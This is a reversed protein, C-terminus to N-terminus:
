WVVAAVAEATTASAIQAKLAESHEFHAVGAAVMAAVMAKFTAIDPIAVFSNDTAKWVGAFGPPLAGYLAVYSAVGDLDSRSLVDCAIQKGGFAFSGRNAALRAANIALRRAARLDDLTPVPEAQPAPIEEVLWAEGDWRVLDLLADFTPPEIATAHAPILWHGEDLPDADAEGEGRLLGTAPDYHFIRM